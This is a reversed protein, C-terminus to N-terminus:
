FIYAALAGAFAGFLHGELSTGKEASVLSMFLGGFYYVTIIAVIVAEMSPNFYSNIILYAWYGMIVGSAGVHIATRGFAWTLSGAVVIIFVSVYVFIETGQALILNIFLFLPICNFFLHNFDGHLFPSFGIGPLGAARRPYIGLNNLKKNFLVTNIVHVCVVVGVIMLALPTQAKFSTILADAQELTAFSM